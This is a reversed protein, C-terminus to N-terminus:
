YISSLRFCAGGVWTSKWHDDLPKVRHQQSHCTLTPCAACFARKCDLCFLYLKNDPHKWCASSDLAPVQRTATLARRGEDTKLVSVLNALSLNEPLSDIGRASRITTYARCVPCKFSIVLTSYNYDEENKVLDQICKKCFSHSCRLLLPCSYLECCVACTLEQEVNQSLSSDAQAMNAALSVQFM